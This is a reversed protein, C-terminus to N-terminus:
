CGANEIKTDNIVVNNFSLSGTDVAADINKEAKDIVVNDLRINELPFEQSGELYLGNM